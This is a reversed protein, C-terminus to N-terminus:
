EEPDEMIPFEGWVAMVAQYYEPTLFDAIGMRGKPSNVLHCQTLSGIPLRVGDVTIYEQLTVVASQKDLHTLTFEKERIM